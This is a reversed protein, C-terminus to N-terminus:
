AKPISLKSFGYYNKRIAPICKIIESMSDSRAPYDFLASMYFLQIVVDIDVCNFYNLKHLVKSFCRVCDALKSEKFSLCM